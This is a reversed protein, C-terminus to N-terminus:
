EAAVTEGGNRYEDIHHLVTELLDRSLLGEEAMARNTENTIAQLRAQEGPAPDVPEVGSAILAELAEEADNRNEVDWRRYVRAMVEHVIERDAADIRDFARRDIALLGMSYLIPMRTLYDVRTHWQLVLAGAPSMAVIDILGTQLGTLVDTIPLTVPALSLAEMTQYSILDGEPVWVKRGRLDAHSRVPMNSMVMAFGGGAFGFSAFGAEELGETLLPDVRERVYDVEDNSEFLFPLGYVNLDPYVQQLDTPTFAGGHLQGIKIKRLVKDASGQVGGAYFRFTVRGDTREQIEAAGRRMDKMWQTNEPLVTAIKLDAAAAPLTWAGTVVLLMVAKLITRKRM